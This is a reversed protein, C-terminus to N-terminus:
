NKDYIKGQLYMLEQKLKKVEESLKKIKENKAVLLIDKSCETMKRKINPQGIVESQKLRLDEIRKRIDEHTYLYTKSVNAEVSLSNFNVAKKEIILRQIANDVRKIADEKKNLAHKKLGDTNRIYTSSM